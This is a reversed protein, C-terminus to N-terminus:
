SSSRYAGNKRRRSCRKKHNYKLLYFNIFCYFIYFFYEVAQFNHKHPNIYGTTGSRYWTNQHAHGVVWEIRHAPQEILCGTASSKRGDDIRSRALDARSGKRPGRHHANMDPVMNQEPPFPKVETNALHFRWDFRTGFLAGSSNLVPVM